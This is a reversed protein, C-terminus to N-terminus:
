DGGREAPAGGVTLILGAKRLGKKTRARLGVEQWNGGRRGKGGIRGFAAGGGDSVSLETWGWKSGGNLVLGGEAGSLGGKGGWSDSKQLAKKELQPRWIGIAEIPVLGAALSGPKPSFPGVGGREKGGGGVDNKFHLFTLGFCLSVAWGRALRSLNVPWSTHSSQHILTWEGGGGWDQVRQAKVAASRQAM